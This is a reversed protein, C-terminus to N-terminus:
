AMRGRLARALNKSFERPFVKRVTIEGVYQFDFIAEYSVWHVFILIPKIASGSSFTFRQWIGFPLKGGAPSGVFYQVSRAGVRRALRDSRRKRSALTSNFSFGESTNTRFYSLIQNIEGRSMNGYRDLRAGSGPVAIYGNPLVGVSRLAREFKKLRRGGGAIEPRLFKVPPTGESAEEKIGVVAVLKQKTAPQIYTSNLTYRTPRDFVDKMEHVEAKQVAVATWSLARAVISPMQREMRLANRGIRQIDHKVSIM